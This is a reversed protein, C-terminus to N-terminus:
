MAREFHGAVTPWECSSFAASFLTFGEPAGDWFLEASTAFRFCFAMAIATFGPECTAMFAKIIYMDPEFRFMNEILAMLEAIKVGMVLMKLMSLANAFKSTSVCNGFAIYIAILKTHNATPNYLILEILNSGVVDASKASEITQFSMISVDLM